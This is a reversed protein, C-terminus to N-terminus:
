APAMLLPCAVRRARRDVRAAGRALEDFRPTMSRAGAAQLSSGGFVRRWLAM